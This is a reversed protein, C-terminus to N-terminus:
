IMENKFFISYFDNIKPLKKKITGRYKFPVFRMAIKIGEFLKIVLIRKLAYIHVRLPYKVFKREYGALGATKGVLRDMLMVQEDSLEEKWKGQNQPDIPQYIKHHFVESKKDQYLESAKENGQYIEILGPVIPIGLFNCISELFYDPQEIFDEYKFSYVQAPYKKLLRDVEIISDKWRIIIWSLIGFMLGAKKVSLYNDRYDRRICIFKAEPFIKLFFGPFQSYLPNKDGFAMIERKEFASQYEVYVAKVFNQFNFDGRIAQLNQKVKAYDIPWNEIKPLKQLADMLAEIANDDLKTLHGYRMYLIMILECEGPIMVNPHADLISQLLTTGSRPRGIIFFFPINEVSLAQSM